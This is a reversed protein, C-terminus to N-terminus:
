SRSVNKRIEDRVGAYSILERYRTTRLTEYTSPSGIIDFVQDAQNFRIHQMERPQLPYTEIGKVLASAFVTNLIHFAKAPEECLIGVFGDDGVYIKTEACDGLYCKEDLFTLRKGTIKEAFTMKHGAGLAIPPYFFTGWGNIIEEKEEKPETPTSLGIEDCIGKVGLTPLFGECIWLEVDTPLVTTSRHIAKKPEGKEILRQIVRITRVFRDEILERAYSQINSPLMAIYENFWSSSKLISEFTQKADISYYPGHIQIILDPKEKLHSFMLLQVTPKEFWVVNVQCPASCGALDEGHGYKSIYRRAELLYKHVFSRLSEINKGQEIALREM